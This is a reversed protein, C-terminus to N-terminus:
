EYGVGQVLELAESESNCRAAIWGIAVFHLLWPVQGPRWPAGPGRKMEIVVGGCHPAKPPPGPILLDPVGASAGKRHLARWAAARQAGTGTHARENPVSFVRRGYAPLVDRLYAVVNAQDDGELPRRPRRSRTM